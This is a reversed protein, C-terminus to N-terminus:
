VGRMARDYADAPSEPKREVIKKRSPVLNIQTKPQAHSGKSKLWKSEDFQLTHTLGTSTTQVDVVVINSQQRVSFAYVDGSLQRDRLWIRIETTALNASPQDKALYYDLITKIDALTM